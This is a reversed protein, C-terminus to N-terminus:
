RRSPDGPRAPADVLQHRHERVIQRRRALELPDGIGELAGTPLAFREGPEFASALDVPGCPMRNQPRPDNGGVKPVALDVVGDRQRYTRM